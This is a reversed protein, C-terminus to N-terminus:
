SEVEVTPEVEIVQEQPDPTSYNPFVYSDGVKIVKSHPTPRESFDTVDIIEDYNSLIFNVYKEDAIIVNEVQEDKILAYYGM